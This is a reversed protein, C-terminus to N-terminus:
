LSPVDRLVQRVWDRVLSIQNGDALPRRMVESPERSVLEAPRLLKSSLALRAAKATDINIQIRVKAQDMVLGIMGGIYAFREIDSVTLVAKGKVQELIGKLRSTESRSIFLVHCYGADEKRQFRKVILTRGNVTEDRVAADLAAGFPDNGIVGIVLPTKGPVATEPWDVFRTFNFLFVAKLEYETAAGRAVPLWGALGAVFLLGLRRKWRPLRLRGPHNSQKLLAM